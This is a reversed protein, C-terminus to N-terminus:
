YVSSCRTLSLARQLIQPVRAGTAIRRAPLHPLNLHDGRRRRLRDARACRGSGAQCGRRAAPPLRPTLPAQSSRASSAARVLFVWSAACADTNNRLRAALQMLGLTAFVSRITRAVPNGEIDARGAGHAHGHSDHRVGGALVAESGGSVRAGGGGGAGGDVGHSHEPAAAVAPAERDACLSLEAAVGRLASSSSANSGQQPEAASAELVSEREPEARCLVARHRSAPAPSPRLRAAGPRRAEPAVLPPLGGRLPTLCAM